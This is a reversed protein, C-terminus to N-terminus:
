SKVDLGVRKILDRKEKSSLNLFPNLAKKEYTDIYYIGQAFFIKAIVFYIQTAVQIQYEKQILEFLIKAQKKRYRSTIKVVPLRKTDYQPYINAAHNIAEEGVIEIEKRLMNMIDEIAFGNTLTVSENDDAHLTIKVVNKERILFDTLDYLEHMQAPVSVEEITMAEIGLQMCIRTLRRSPKQGLSKILIREM